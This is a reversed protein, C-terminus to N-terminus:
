GWGSVMPCEDRQTDVILHFLITGQRRHTGAFFPPLSHNFPAAAAHIRTSMTM